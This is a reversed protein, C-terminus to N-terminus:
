RGGADTGRGGAAPAARHPRALEGGHGPAPRTSYAELAEAPDAPMCSRGAGTSGRARPARRDDAAILAYAVRLWRAYPWLWRAASRPVYTGLVALGVRARLRRRAAPDALVRAGEAAGAFAFPVFASRYRIENHFLVIVM